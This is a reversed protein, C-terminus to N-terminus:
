IRVLAMIAMGHTSTHYVDVRRGSLNPSSLFFFFSSHPPRVYTTGETWRRLTLRLEGYQTISSLKKKLNDIHAKTAFIYGSLTTRHHGSKQRSKQTRCKWPAHAARLVNWVQMRFKCLPWVMHRLITSMWHVAASILRPFSSSLIFGCFSSIIAQGIGYPPWLAAMLFWLAAM